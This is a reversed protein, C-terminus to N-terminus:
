LLIKELDALTKCANIRVRMQAADRMGRVYFALHKRLEIMAHNGKEGIAMRAHRLATERRQRESPPEYTEGALACRIEEFLFPNGLAARGAMVGRCGTERLTELASEGGNVDGNAIVPIGVTRGVEAMCARDAKGAYLQDRTRGHITLFDAGSEECVKAFEAANVHAKDWGKRFKVSVPVNVANATQEIIRGALVPQLMLASGDGNGTIKPAPCGMNLDIFLLREKLDDQVIKAAGAVIEPESGFLQVGFPADSEAAFYLARTKGSGYLLGKASIMESTVLDAGKERCLLRFTRDTYGAMPALCVLPRGPPFPLKKM